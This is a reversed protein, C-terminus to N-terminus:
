ALRRAAAPGARARGTAPPLMGLLGDLDVAVEVEVTLGSLRCRAVTADNARAARVAVACAHTQGGIASGAASLAVLDAASDARHRAVIAQGAALVAVTVTALLTVLALGYITASGRDCPSRV